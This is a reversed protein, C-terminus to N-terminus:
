VKFFRLVGDIEELMGLFREKDEFSLNYNREKLFEKLQESKKKLEVHRNRLEGSMGSLSKALDKLNDKNRVHFENTFDGDKLVDIGKRLRYLPGVIRHSIILAMASLVLTSFFAVVVVTLVLVPLIFDATSKVSVRTNEIAVTTSNRTLFFVLGGIVLSSFIVIVCFKFIFGLQFDKDILYHKRKMRASM